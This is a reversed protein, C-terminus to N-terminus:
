DLTQPPDDYLTLTDKSVFYLELHEQELFDVAAEVSDFEFIKVEGLNSVLEIVIKAVRRPVSDDLIREILESLRDAIVQVMLRGIQRKEEVNLLCYREWATYAKEKEKEEWRFDINYRDLLQCIYEFPILFIAIDHSEMMAISSQSWNGALIAISSRISHYRRRIASHATCVWSGKDRNHKKYRIYKSEVLLLPRMAGDAIVGDINYENGSSDFLLLKRSFQGSKTQRLGSTNYHCGHETAIESLLEGLAQEMSTGIAEGLASGPNAVTYLPSESM